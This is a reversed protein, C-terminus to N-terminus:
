LGYTLTIRAGDADHAYAVEGHLGALEGTGSGPVVRGFAEQSQEDGVGGHQLVFTGRRGALM